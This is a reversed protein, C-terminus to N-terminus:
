AKVFKQVLRLLTECAKEMASVVLYEYISHYNEGGTFLNPCPLGRYSLTAGDTGGRCPTVQIQVGAEAMAEEAYTVLFSYPEIKDRMNYYQDKMDVAIREQGLAQNMRDAVHQMHAKRNEFSARDFDRIIYSMVAHDVEGRIATLHYFGEYGSTHEPREAEPLALQYQAALTLANVMMDKASGPHVNLGQITVQAAAANFNEWAFDGLGGGDLTYGFDASLAELDFFDPGRGIEEDPTFAIKLDGHPVEPHAKLYRILAMIEAIGAKDDAGLLTSGDTVILEEGRYRKLAPFTKESLVPSTTPQDPNLMVDEGTYTVRRAKVHEGSADPATDMHAILALSGQAPANGALGAYVYAKDSIEAHIDLAALQDKIIAALDFIAPNSPCDPNEVHATTEVAIYDAFYDLAYQLIESDHTKKLM